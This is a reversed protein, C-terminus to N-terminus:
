RFLYGIDQSAKGHDIASLNECYGKCDRAITILKVQFSADQPDGFFKLLAFLTGFIVINYTIIILHIPSNALVYINCSAVNIHQM